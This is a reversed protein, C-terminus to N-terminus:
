NSSLAQLAQITRYSHLRNLIQFIIERQMQNQLGTQVHTDGLIQNSTISYSHSTTVTDPGEIVNGKSGMLQYTVTYTLLYTTTQGSVGASTMQQSNNETLIQLTVPAAQANKVLVIGTSTLTQRLQKTFASYPTNSALYMVHLQSPLPEYGRVHFGCATLAFLVTSFLVWNIYKM